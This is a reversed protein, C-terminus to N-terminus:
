LDLQIVALPGVVGMHAKGDVIRRQHVIVTVVFAESSAGMLVVM